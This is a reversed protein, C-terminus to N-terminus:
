KHNSKTNNNYVQYDFLHIPIIISVIKCDFIYIINKMNEKISNIPFFFQYVITM